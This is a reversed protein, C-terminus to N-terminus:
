TVLSRKQVQNLVAKSPRYLKVAQNFASRGSSKTLSLIKFVLFDKLSRAEKTEVIYNKKVAAMGLSPLKKFDKIFKKYNVNYIQYGNYNKLLTDLAKKYLLLATQRDFSTNMQEHIFGGFVQQLLDEKFVSKGVRNIKVKELYSNWAAIESRATQLYQKKESSTLKKFEREPFFESQERAPIEGRNSLFLYALSKYFHLLGREFVEGKYKRKTENVLTSGLADKVSIYSLKENLEIAKQFFFTSDQYRSRKFEILGREMFYLVRSRPSQYQEISDLYDIAGDFDGVIVLERLQHREKTGTGSCSFLLFTISLFFSTESGGM